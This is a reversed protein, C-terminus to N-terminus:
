VQKKALKGSAKSPQVGLAFPRTPPLPASKTPRDDKAPRTEEAESVEDQDSVREVLDGMEDGGSRRAAVAYATRVPAEREATMVSSGSGPLAAPQGDTRLSAALMSRDGGALEARGLWEVKVRATGAGRFDLAEAVRQSVDMVRGGHYPGRDNVRVIISYNNKTNTVRAYSPLPLTPHAASISNRDFVEGNATLRGHFDSGYWSAPGVATYPKESPYYTKGAIQYPKGVQYRGGGEPVEEGDAVVRPSPRVGYRSDVGGASAFHQTPQGACGGLLSSLAVFLGCRAAACKFPVEGRSLSGSMRAKVLAERM